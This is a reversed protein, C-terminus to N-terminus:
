LSRSSPPGSRTACSGTRRRPGAQTPELLRPVEQPSAAAWALHPTSPGSRGTGTAPQGPIKSDPYWGPPTDTM